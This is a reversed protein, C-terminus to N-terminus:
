SDNGDDILRQQLDMVQKQLAIIQDKLLGPDVEEKKPSFDAPVFYTIPTDLVECIILLDKVDCSDRKTMSGIVQRTKGLHEGLWAQSREQERLKHAIKEGINLNKSM